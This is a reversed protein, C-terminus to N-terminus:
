FEIEFFNDDKKDYLNVSPGADCVVVVALESSWVFIITKQERVAIRSFATVIYDQLLVPMRCDM